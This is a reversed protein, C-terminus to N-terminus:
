EDFLGIKELAVSRILISAATLYDLRGPPPKNYLHRATGLRFDVWGGGWAQVLSKDHMYYLVSGVAAVEPHDDLEHALETLTQSEVVTDNNLLWVLQANREFAWIIAPNCGGGFGKNRDNIIIHVAPHKEKIRTVSDDTSANDVVVIEHNKYDLQLLSDLCSITDRWGHWNVLVVVVKQNSPSEGPEFFVQKKATASIKLLRM